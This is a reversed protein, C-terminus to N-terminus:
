FFHNKCHLELTCFASMRLCDRYDPISREVQARFRVEDLEQGREEAQHASISTSQLSQNIEQALRDAQEVSINSTAPDLKTTYLNEDFSTTVGFKKENHLFQDWKQGKTDGDELAMGAQSGDVDPPPEWKKLPRMQRAGHM